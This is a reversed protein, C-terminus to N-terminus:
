KGWDKRLLEWAYTDKKHNEIGLRKNNKILEEKKLGVKRFGFKKFLKTSGENDTMSEGSIKNLKLRNFAFNIVRKEAESIYGKRRYKKGIRYGIQTKKCKRNMHHLEIGGIVKGTEKLEIGFTYNNRPNEKSEKKAQKIRGKAKKSTYPYPIKATYYYVKRDHANEVLDKVDKDELDRLILRETTLKM